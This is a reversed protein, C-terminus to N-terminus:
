ARFPSARQLLVAVLLLVAIWLPWSPGCFFYTVAPLILWLLPSPRFM